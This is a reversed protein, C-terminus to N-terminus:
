SIRWQQILRALASAVLSRMGTRWVGDLLRLGTAWHRRGEGTGAVWDVLKIARHGSLRDLQLQVSAQQLRATKLLIQYRLAQTNQRSM